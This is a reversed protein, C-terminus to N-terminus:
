HNFLFYFFFSFFNVQIKPTYRPRPLSITKTLGRIVYTSAGWLENIRSNINLDEGCIRTPPPTSIRVSCSRGYKEKWVAAAAAAASDRITYSSSISSSSDDHIPNSPLLYFISDLKKPHYSAKFKIRSRSLSKKTGPNISKQM